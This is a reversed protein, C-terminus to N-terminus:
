DTDEEDAFLLDLDVITDIGDLRGEGTYQWVDIDYLFSPADRFEALWFSYDQLQSLQMITYGYRQNFYVGAEYGLETIRECFALAYDGVAYGGMGSSRSGNESIEEWDYYIPLELSAGDLLSVIFDAEERAEESSVAQSFFYLGIKLGQARAAAFNDRFTEDEFIGGAGYGRYAARIIAFEAGAQKVTQWDIPGQHSSVDIGAIAGPYSIHGEADKTFDEAKRVNIPLDYTADQGERSVTVGDSRDFCWVILLVAALMALVGLVTPLGSGRKKPKKRNSAM